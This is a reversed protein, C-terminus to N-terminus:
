SHPMLGKFLDSVTQQMDHGAQPDLVMTDAPLGLGLLWRGYLLIAIMAFLALTVVIDQRFSSLGHRSVGFVIAVYYPIDNLAVMIVAGAIGYSIFGLPIAIVNFVFRFFNGLASFGPKGIAFLAQDITQSLMNPWVGIALIPLMWAAQEYRKDYLLLILRDGTCALIALGSAMILLVKMRNHLIQQRFAPREMTSLRTLAPFIIKGSLVGVLQRPLDSLTFAITYIGLMELSFIKGLIMRDAQGAVFTLATSIFIWKGFSVLERAAEKDWHFRCHHGPSIYHSWLMHVFAAILTGAVLAYISPYFYAWAIMISLSLLQSGLEMFMVRKVALNRYSIYLGPSIFGNIVASLAILPTLGILQPSNYIESIPYTALSAIIWILFGRIVQMTWGTNLFDPNNWQKSRVISTGIGLDSFLTLGMIIINVLAMLGFLDPFLLHTLILNSVFRFIQGLGYSLITWFAGHLVDKKLGQLDPNNSTKDESQSDLTM